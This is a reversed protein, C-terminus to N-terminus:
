SKLASLIKFVLELDQDSLQHIISTAETELSLRKENKNCSVVDTLIDGPSCNLKECILFFNDFSPYNIGREINSVAEVSIDCTEAIDAQTMKKQKRAQQLLFGIHQKTNKSM